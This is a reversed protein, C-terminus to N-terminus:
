EKQQFTQNALRGVKIANFLWVISFLVGFIAYIRLNKTFLGVVNIFAFQTIVDGARYIVTDLFNKFKYKINKDLGTFLWDTPPKMIGYAGSRQLITTLLVIQLVPMLGFLIFSLIMLTPYIGLIKYIKFKQLFFPTLILQFFLTLSNTYTNITAFIATRADSDPYYLKVYKGQLYYFIGGILVSMITMLAIQRLLSSSFTLKIGDIPSGGIPAEPNKGSHNAFKRVQYVAIISLIMLVVAVLLLNITGIYIVLFKALLGGTIGGTSGGAAIVGFLRKGQKKTYVDSMFSWFVSVVFVNYVSIFVFYIRSIVSNENGFYNFLFWLLLICAAFFTYVMPIFKKRSYRSVIMGYIPQLFILVIFTSLFLMDYNDPGINVGMAERIPRLIYYGTLLFYFYLFSWILPPWEDPKVQSKFYAVIKNESM